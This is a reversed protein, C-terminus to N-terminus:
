LTAIVILLLMTVLVTGVILGNDATELWRRSHTTGTEFATELAHRADVLMRQGDARMRAALPMTPGGSGAPRADTPRQQEAPAWAHAGSAPAAQPAAPQPRAIRTTPHEAALDMLEDLPMVDTTDDQVQATDSSRAPDLGAPLRSLTETPQWGAGPRRVWQTPADAKPDTKDSPMESTYGSLRATMASM